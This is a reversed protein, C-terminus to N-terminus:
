APGLAVGFFRLLAQYLIRQNRPKLIGHGEDEFVLKEYQIKAEKLKREVQEVNAPTVNPDRAGQVILLNGKINEVFNIPSREHYKEPINDPSGGMMEESYPRLDPRTTEYDVVLDTMGCIPAAAAMLDRPYRTIAVWSSYGGYSTGSIGIRGPAALGARILARAGWIIDDQEKGGWGDEKILERFAIGYGTSGRYNPDLVNFGNACLIQILPDIADESHFTPGGHVHIVARQTQRRSRYLWGKIEIGDVSSWKFEEAPAFDKARLRTVEWVRTISVFSAPDVNTVDFRVLEDPQTSSSYLGIWENGELPSGLSLTGRLEPLRHEELNDLDIISEKRRAERVEILVAVNRQRPCHVYEISRKPDEVLWEIEATETSYRGVAKQSLREGRRMDTTFVIHRGDAAWVGEAKGIPGFNLIERDDTGDTNTLWLQEGSPDLDKRNYLVQGGTKNLSLDVYAPKEPRALAVLEGTELDHRYIWTAEQPCGSSFDYNAGYVLWKNNPHLVGGRLFFPPDEMTLPYMVGPEGIAVRFLRARENRGKDERVILHGSDSTWDVLVTAEPTKTLYTPPLSANTPAIFVDINEHVNGWTFAVHRQDPSVRFNYVRPLCLLAELMDSM